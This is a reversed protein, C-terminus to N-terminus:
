NKAFESHRQSYIFYIVLGIAMWGFFRLWNLIPLGAMLLICTIITMIPALPGGPARFARPRNPERYRLILVGIAVLVFAFLTGINALDAVTGIDLMGAPIGVALGAIWTAVHPTRFRQHVKGFLQPLLGDRSM